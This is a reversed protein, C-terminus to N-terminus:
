ILEILNSFCLAIYNVTRSGSKIWYDQLTITEKNVFSSGTAFYGGNSGFPIVFLAHISADSNFLACHVLYTKNILILICIKPACTPEKDVCM